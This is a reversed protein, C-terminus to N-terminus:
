KIRYFSMKDVSFEPASSDKVNVGKVLYRKNQQVEVPTCRAERTFLIHWNDNVCIFDDGRRKAYNELGVMTCWLYEWHDANSDLDLVIRGTGKRNHVADYIDALYKESLQPEAPPEKYLIHFCAAFFFISLLASLTRLRESQILLVVAGAFACVFLVPAAYYFYGTYNMALMDVGFLAYCLLALTAAFIVVPFYQIGSLVGPLKERKIFLFLSMLLGAAMPWLGGWFSSVYIVADLFNNIDHRREFNLYGRFEGPFNIATNMIIPVLFLSFIAASIIMTRKNKLLFERDLIKASGDGTSCYYNYLLSTAYIIFLILTFCAHGNILFGSSVALIVFANKDGKALFVSALLATAFPFYYLHPFWISHFFGPLIFATMLLFVSLNLVALRKSQYLRYFLMTLCTIWFANFFTAAVFQGSVPFPVVHLGDYFVAEGAALVYLIAPGPHNIGVRSYNGVLLQLSKAKQVLLSNAALDGAELPPSIIQHHNAVLLCCAIAFYILIYASINKRKEM